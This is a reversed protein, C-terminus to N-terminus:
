FASTRESQYFYHNCPAHMAPMLEVPCKQGALKIYQIGMDDDICVLGSKELACMARDSLYMHKPAGTDLLFSMAIYKGDGISWAV